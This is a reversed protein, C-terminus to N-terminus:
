DPRVYSGRETLYEIAKRLSTISEKLLGLATNCNCCLLGRPVGTVHNHDSFLKRKPADSAPLSCIACRGSQDVLMRDYIEPTFGYKRLNRARARDPNERAWKRARERDKERNAQSYKRLYGLRKERDAYPM